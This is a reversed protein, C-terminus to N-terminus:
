YVTLETHVDVKLKKIYRILREEHLSTNVKMDSGIQYKSEVRGEAAITTDNILSSNRFTSNDYHQKLCDIDIDDVNSGRQDKTM